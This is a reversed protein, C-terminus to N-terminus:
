PGANPTASPAPEGSAPARQLFQWGQATTPGMTLILENVDPPVDFLLPVSFMGGGPPIADELALDGRQGREYVTLYASSAGPVPRYLRGQDDLLGFLEPPIHRATTETNGVALVVLAFQGQAQVEAVSESLLQAYDPQLLTAHWGDHQLITGLSQVTPRPIPSPALTPTPPIRTPTSTSIRAVVGPLPTTTPAAGPQPVSSLEQAQPRVAQETDLFTSGVFWILAILLLASAFPYFWRPLHAPAARAHERAAPSQLRRAHERAAQSEHPDNTIDALFLWARPDDPYQRTLARTLACAGARNGQQLAKQSRGLLREFEGPSLAAGAGSSNTQAPRPTQEPM